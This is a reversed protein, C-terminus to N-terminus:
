KRELLARLRAIEAEAEDARREAQQKEQTAQEAQQKAQEAQQKAQKAQQKAQKAQEARADQEELHLLPEGTAADIFRLRGEELTLKLGLAKSELTGKADPFIPAYHGGALRFGQLPPDLYDAEPDYLFYELVGLEACLERKNGKDELRTARSTVELVFSPVRKEEWLKYVRRRRKPVGFIVFVDPAFVAAPTGEEYYFFLNGGLYVNPDLRYRRKLAEIADVMEDRHLETEGMPKGDSEPYEVLHAFGLEVAATM